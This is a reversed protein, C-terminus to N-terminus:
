PMVCNCRNCYNQAPRRDYVAVVGRSIDNAATQPARGERKLGHAYQLGARLSRPSDFPPTASFGARLTTSHAQGSRLRIPAESERVEGLCVGTEAFRRLEEERIM